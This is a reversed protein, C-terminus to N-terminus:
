DDYRITDEQKFKIIEETDELNKLYVYEKM